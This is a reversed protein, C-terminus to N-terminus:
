KHPTHPYVNRTSIKKKRHFNERQMSPIDADVDPDTVVNGVHVQFLADYDSLFLYERAVQAHQGHFTCHTTDPPHTPYRVRCGM